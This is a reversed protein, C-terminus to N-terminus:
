DMTLSDSDERVVDGAEAGRENRDLLMNAALATIKMSFGAGCDDGEWSKM